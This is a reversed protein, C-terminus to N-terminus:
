KKKVSKLEPTIGRDLKDTRTSMGTYIISINWLFMGYSLFIWYIVEHKEIM